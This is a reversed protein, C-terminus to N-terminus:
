PVPRQVPLLVRFTTGKGLESEVEIRGGHAEVIMKSQFMGIGLGKKKTTQFPRFLSRDRFEASMGCGNDAVTLSVWGNRHATEISVRGNDSVAEDANLVLNTIVKLIQERDLYLRPVPHLDQVLDVHGNRVWATIAQSVVENLDTEVPQMKLEHRLLSLRDILQNIHDVTKAIGRLADERFAPKDFHVPLNRLMLSLTSATNKLDHIFFVSMKQFAELERAELLRESLQVNRLSAAAQDSMCKLLDFDQQSFPVGGVRDGLTIVGLLEGNSIMPVAVRDGGKRFEGPHWQRVLQAWKEKATDINVPMTERLLAAVVEAVEAGQPSLRAGAVDSLSTSAAFTLREKTDDVLWITVSLAQFIEATLKVVARCLETQDVRSATRETFKRWVERYDHLPRQLHRSVFRRTLLRARESLLLVTLLVLAILIVFAKVAFTADGGLFTVVKAFVGVVFLYVGALLVTLSNYLVSQSPYVSVDFHGVRLLSRLILLCALLLTGSDVSTWSLDVVGFVLNQSTTYARVAFLVGLGIIMFKIRWRMTGVSARLTREFNTLVLISCMLFLLNLGVAPWSLLLVWHNSSPLQRAVTVVDAQVAAVLGTPLVFAAVILWWWKRLTERADGRSYTVSFLLWIGPLISTAVFRWNEWYVMEEPVTAQAALGGLLSEAALVTMGVFFAAPALSLKERVAVTVGLAFALLASGVALIFVLGM